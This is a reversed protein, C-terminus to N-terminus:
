HPSCSCRERPSRGATKRRYGRPRGRVAQCPRPETSLWAAGARMEGGVAIVLAFEPGRPTSGFGTAASRHAPPPDAAPSNRAPAPHQGCRGLDALQRWHEGRRSVEAAAALGQM